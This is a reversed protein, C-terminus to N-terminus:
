EIEKSPESHGHEKERKKRRYHRKVSSLNACRRGCYKRRRSLVALNGCEPCFGLVTGKFYADQLLLCAVIKSFVHEVWSWGIEKEDLRERGTSVKHRRSKVLRPLHLQVEIPGNGKFLGQVQEQLRRLEDLRLEPSFFPFTTEIMRCIAQYKRRKEQLDQGEEDEGLVWYVMANFGWIGECDQATRVQEMTRDYGELVEPAVEEGHDRWFRRVTEKIDVDLAPRNKVQDERRKLEKGVAGFHWEDFFSFRFWKEALDGELPGLTRAFADKLGESALFGGTVPDFRVVEDSIDGLAEVVEKLQEKSALDARFLVAAFQLL